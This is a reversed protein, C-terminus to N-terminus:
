LYSNNQKVSNATKHLIMPYGLKEWVMADIDSKQVYNQGIALLFLLSVNAHKYYVLVFM